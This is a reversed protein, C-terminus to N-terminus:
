PTVDSAPTGRKTAYIVLGAGALFPIISLYQGMTLASDSLAQYEKVFEVLFRSLFYSALFLGSLLGVPRRERGTKRDVIVLLALIALGMLFEYIQSPHRAVAGGDYRVFRVGWPMDTARGVVESNFFNGLRVMAAGIAASFAFRDMFDLVSARYHRAYLILVAILAVTAGHSALGGRWLVFLELPNSLYFDPDYFLAHGLRAGVVVGLVGWILFNQAIAERYGGRLIQARWVFYGTYLMAVFLIGYYRLQFPGFRVIAPDLDFIIGAEM